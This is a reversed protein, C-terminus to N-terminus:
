IKRNRSHFVEGDVHQEEIGANSAGARFDQFLLLHMGLITVTRHDFREMTGLLKAVANFFRQLFAVQLEKSLQKVLVPQILLLPRSLDAIVLEILPVTDGTFIAGSASLDHPGPSSAEEHEVAWVAM